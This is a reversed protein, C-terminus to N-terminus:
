ACTALLESLYPAAAIVQEFNDLALLQDGAFFSKLHELLSQNGVQRIGLAQALTPVVLRPDMIPALSVFYVGDPFDDAISQILDLLLDTKGVGAPGTLTLLPLDARRLQQILAELVQDRGIRPTLPVAIPPHIVSSM